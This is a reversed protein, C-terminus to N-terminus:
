RLGHRKLLSYLYVRSIGAERAARSLNGSHVGLLRDLYAKEFRAIAQRRAEDWRPVVRDLHEMMPSTKALRPGGALDAVSRAGAVGIHLGISPM